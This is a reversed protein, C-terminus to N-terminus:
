ARALVDLLLDVSEPVTSAHVSVRVQTAHVTVAFGEAGLGPGGVGAPWARGRVGRRGGPEPEDALVAACRGSEPARARRLPHPGGRRDLGLAAPAAPGHGARVPRPVRHDLGLAAVEPGRGGARRGTDLRPGRRRLGPHRRVVLLRDGVAERLGPLDARAGTAFDVASLAVATGAPGLAAAVSAPTTAPLTRVTLLGAEEARARPYRNAPFEGAGVLVEGTLAFAVQFLGTSTNPVTTVADAPFGSLASVLQLVEGRTAMPGDVTSPGMAVTAAM